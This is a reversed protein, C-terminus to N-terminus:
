SRQLRTHGTGKDPDDDGFLNGQHALPQDPQALGDWITCNGALAAVSTRSEGEDLPERGVQRQEIQVQWIQMDEFDQGGNTL